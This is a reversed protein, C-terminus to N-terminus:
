EEGRILHNTVVVHASLWLRVSDGKEYDAYGFPDDMPGRYPKLGHGLENLTGVAEALVDEIAQKLQLELEGDFLARWRARAEASRSAQRLQGCSLLREDM